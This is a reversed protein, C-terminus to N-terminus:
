RGRSTSRPRIARSPSSPSSPAAPIARPRAGQRGQRVGRGGRRRADRGAHPLRGVRAHPRALHARGLRAAGRAAARGRPRRVRERLHPGRSPERRHAAQRDGDRTGERVGRGGRARRHARARAHGRDRRPQAFHLPGDLGLAAGAREMAEDIVGVIAETHKRSAIEPVVGGFRAHFDIQSAVVNSLLERGGRMVAAATEDCSSEIALILEDSDGARRAGRETGLLDGWM